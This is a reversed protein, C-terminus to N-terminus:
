HEIEQRERELALYDLLADLKREVREARRCAARVAHRCWAWHLVAVAVILALVVGVCTVVLM